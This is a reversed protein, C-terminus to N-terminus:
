NKKIEEITVKRFGSLKEIERAIDETEGALLLSDSKLLEAPTAAKYKECLRGDRLNPSVVGALVINISLNEENSLKKIEAVRAFPLARLKFVVDEGALKSLRKLKFDKEPLQPPDIDLLIDLVSREM